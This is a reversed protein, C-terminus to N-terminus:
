ALLRNKGKGFWFELNQAEGKKVVVKASTLRVFPASHMMNELKTYQNYVM